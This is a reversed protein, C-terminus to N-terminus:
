LCLCCALQLNFLVIKVWCFSYCDIWRLWLMIWEIVFHKNTGLRLIAMFATVRVYYHQLVNAHQLNWFILNDHICFPLLPIADCLISIYTRLRHYCSTQIAVCNPTHCCKVLNLVHCRWEIWSSICESSM